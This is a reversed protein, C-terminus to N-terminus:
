EDHTLKVEDCLQPIPMNSIDIDNFFSCNGNNNFQGDRNLLYPDTENLSSVNRNKNFQVFQKNNQINHVPFNEQIKQTNQLYQEQQQPYQHFKPQNQHDNDQVNLQGTQLEFFESNLQKFVFINLILVSFM